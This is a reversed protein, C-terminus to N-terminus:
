KLRLFPVLQYALKLFKNLFFNTENEFEPLKSKMKKKEKEKKRKKKKNKFYSILNFKNKM